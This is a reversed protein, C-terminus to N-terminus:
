PACWVGSRQAHSGPNPPSFQSSRRQGRPQEPWPTQSPLVPTHAHSGPKMPSSQASAAGCQGFLQVPWPEHMLASHAHSKPKAPGLQALLAESLAGAALPASPPTGAAAAAKGATRAESKRLTAKHRAFRAKELM